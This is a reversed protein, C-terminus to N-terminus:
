DKIKYVGVKVKSPRLVRNFLKYGKQLEEVITGDLNEEKVEQEAVSEHEAPDLQKGETYEIEEVGHRRLIELFQWLLAQLSCETQLPVTYEM